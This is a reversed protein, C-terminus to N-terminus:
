AASGRGRRLRQGLDDLLSFLVPLVVLTLVTGALLGTAAAIGLPSMRELGVAMEFVLPSLGLVTSLTTMLVPRLRLRVAEVIATEREAGEARAQRVFDLLLISNNVVTGGLLILGMIAPMSMPKGFVLLGWLASAVALPIAAIIAVPYRLAGFLAFLLLALMGFGPLLAARMRGQNAELDSVTGGVEISYGAPVNVGAVRRRAEAAVDAVTHGRNVATIDLTQQLDERTIAPRTWQTTTDAVARLPVPGEATPLYVGGVGGPRDVAADAYAVRIPVDLFGTLRLDGAPLGDVAAALARGTDAASLGLRQASERDVAVTQEPKDRLWSRRVDLVGPMGELAALTREGLADLVDADPGSIIIDLPAKTTSIPTAGFEAVTYGKIGPLEDMAARWRDMITWIDAARQTRDVLYVTLNATQATAGGAGFSIKGPEAGVVSSVRRVGPTAAIVAEVEDLVGEVRELGYHAPTELEIAAIGTDMPPMLENGILPPVTRVTGVFFVVAAALTLWRHRLVARVGHGTAEALRDTGTGVGSLAREVANPGRRPKGLLRAALVPIVTLAVLLSAILTIVIMLNLPRMIRQLYGGAFMVPLVVVVTTLIGATVATAVQRAGARAAERADGDTGARYRRMINELVVVASDIVLGVAIILGSMTVMNLSYPTFGLIALAGLFALPISVSAVAAARWDALFVFIVAVTLVVAQLVSSRLGAANVEILNQQSGAIAFQVDGYAARLAPLEAKVAEIAALTAGQRPRLINLAIAPEGNGHYASRAEATTMSVEAVDGLRVTGNEGQRLPLGALERPTAAEGAVTVLYEGSGPQVRGAPITVNAGELAAVVAAVGLDQAALAARDVAVRVQPEHGGFVEVDGVADLALLRDQIPNEALLRVDALDKPSDAAPRLALTMVPSTAESVPYVRPRAVDAPLDGTTRDLANGVAAVAGHLTRHYGFAVRIAAVGDRSTSRLVSVGDLTNLEKELVRTVDSAMDRASAGPQTAVVVAQPPETDPFLDVPTRFYALLGWIVVLLVVATLARPRHLAWDILRM